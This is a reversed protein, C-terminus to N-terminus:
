VHRDTSPPAPQNWSFGLGDSFIPLENQGEFLHVKQSLQRNQQQPCMIRYLPPTPIAVQFEGRSGM